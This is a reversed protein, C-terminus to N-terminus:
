YRLYRKNKAGAIEFTACGVANSEGSNFHDESRRVRRFHQELGVRVWPGAYARGSWDLPGSGACVTTVIAKEKRSIKRLFEYLCHCPGMSHECTSILIVDLGGLALLESRTQHCALLLPNHHPALALALREKLREILPKRKRTMSGREYRSKEGPVTSRIPPCLDLVLDTDVPRTLQFIQLRIEFPLSM